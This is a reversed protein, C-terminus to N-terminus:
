VKFKDKIDKLKEYELDGLLELVTEAIARGLLPPVANGIQQYVSNKTGIFKYDDPFSQLRAAERASVARNLEPHIWMSKRVNVVTDSPENYVLRKYITNQTREPNEYTDKLNDPLSHFNNGPLIKEFREKAVKTTATCCHNYIIKGKLVFNNFYSSKIRHGGRNIECEMDSISPEYNKLDYIAEKVTTYEEKRFIPEPLKIQDNQLFEHKIGIMIFRERLQPVGFSAANIVSYGLGYGLHTFSQRIYDMVYYTRMRSIIQNNDLILENIVHGERLENVGKLFGQIDCFLELEEFNKSSIKYEELL